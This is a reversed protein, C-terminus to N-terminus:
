PGAEAHWGGRSVVAGPCRAVGTTLPRPTSSIEATANPTPTVPTTPSHRSHTPSSTWPPTSPRSGTRIERMAVILLLAAVYVTEIGDLQADLDALASREWRGRLSYRATERATQRTTVYQGLRPLGALAHEVAAATDVTTADASVPSDSTLTSAQPRQSTRLASILPRLLNRAATRLMRVPSPTALLQAVLLALVGGLVADLM